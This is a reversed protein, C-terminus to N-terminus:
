APAADRKFCPKDFSHVPQRSCLAVVVVVAGAASAFAALATAAAKSWGIQPLHIPIIARAFALHLRVSSVFFIEM